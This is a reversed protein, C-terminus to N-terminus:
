KGKVESLLKLIQDETDQLQKKMRANQVVLANKKNELDPSEKAVVTGLMQDQLGEPTITFNLLTVKVQLEPAYHPNPLKTTIYLHFQTYTHTCVCVCVCVCVCACM